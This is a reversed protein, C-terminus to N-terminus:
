PPLRSELQLAPVRREFSMNIDERKLPGLTKQLRLIKKNNSLVPKLIESSLPAITPKEISQYTNQLLIATNGQEGIEDIFVSSTNLNFDDGTTHLM